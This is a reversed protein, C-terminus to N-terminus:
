AKDFDILANDFDFNNLKATGRYFYLDAYASNIKVAEDFRKIANEYAGEKMLNQGKQLLNFFKTEEKPLGQKHNVFTSQRKLKGTSYYVQWIGSEKQDVFRGKQKLQGNIFYEEIEGHIIGLKYTNFYRKQGNPYYVTRLGDVKGNVLAGE